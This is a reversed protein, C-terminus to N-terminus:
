FQARKTKLINEGGDFSFDICIAKRKLLSTVVKHIGMSYQMAKKPRLVVSENIGLRRGLARWIRKRLRDNGRIIKYYVPIESQSFSVFDQDLLPEASDLGFKSLVLKVEKRLSSAQDLAHAIEKEVEDYGKTDLIRRFRDYGCYLEDPGNASVVISAKSLKRVRDAILWFCVCDDFHSLTSVRVLKSVQLVAEEVDTRRVICKVLSTQGIPASIGQLMRADSSGEVALSLLPFRSSSADSALAELLSSDIGGSYSLISNSQLNKSVANLANNHFRKMLNEFDATQLNPILNLYSDSEARM